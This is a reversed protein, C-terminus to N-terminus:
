VFLVAVQHFTPTGTSVITTSAITLRWGPLKLAASPKAGLPAAPMRAATEVLPIMKASSPKSCASWSAPSLAFGLRSMGRATIPAITIPAIM